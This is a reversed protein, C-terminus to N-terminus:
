SSAELAEEWTAQWPTQVLGNIGRHLTPRMGAVCLAAYGGMSHGAVAVRSPDACDRLFSHRTTAMPRNHAARLSHRPLCLM